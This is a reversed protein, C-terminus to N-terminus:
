ITHYERHLLTIVLRKVEPPVEVPHLSAHVFSKTLKELEYETLCPHCLFLHNFFDSEIEKSIVRDIADGAYYRIENCTLM